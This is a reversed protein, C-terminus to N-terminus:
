ASPWCFGLPRRGTHTEIAQAATRLEERVRSRYSEESEGLRTTPDFLRTVM